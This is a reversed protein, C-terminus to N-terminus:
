CKTGVPYIMVEQMRNVVGSEVKGFFNVGMDGKMRDLIPIRIFDSYRTPTELSDLLEFFCPGNYWPMKETAREM